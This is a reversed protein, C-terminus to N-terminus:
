FAGLQCSFIRIKMAECASTIDMRGMNFKEALEWAVKCPLRGDILSERIAEELEETVSEMPEVILRNGQGYGYLGLQCKILPTELSDITFGVEEPPVGLDNVVKFAAACPIGDERVAQKVAEAVRPDVKRNSPHKKAYHGRDEHTM